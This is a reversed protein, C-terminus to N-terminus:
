YIPTSFILTDHPLIRDIIANYDDHIDHFGEKTHRLDKIPQIIHDKLYIKEVSVGQARNINRFQRKAAYRWLYHCYDDNESEKQIYNKM